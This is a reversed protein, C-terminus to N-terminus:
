LVSTRLLSVKIGSSIPVTCSVLHWFLLFYPSRKPLQLFCRSEEWGGPLLALAPGSLGARPAAETLRSSVTAEVLLVWPVGTRQSPTPTLWTPASARSLFAMDRPPALAVTGVGWRWQILPKSSCALCDSGQWRGGGLDDGGGVVTSRSSRAQSHFTAELRKGPCRGKSMGKLLSPELACSVSPALFRSAPCLSDVFPFFLVLAPLLCSSALM